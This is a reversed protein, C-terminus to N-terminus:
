ILWPMNKGKTQYWYAAAVVAVVAVMIWITKKNMKM